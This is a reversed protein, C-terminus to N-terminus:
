RVEKPCVGLPPADRRSIKPCRDLASLLLHLPLGRVRRWCDLSYRRWHAHKPVRHLSDRPHASARHPVHWILLRPLSDFSAALAASSTSQRHRSSHLTPPTFIGSM